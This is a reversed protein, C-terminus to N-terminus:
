TRWSWSFLSPIKQTKERLDAGKKCVMKHRVKWDNEQCENSCYYILQCRECQDFKRDITETQFCGRAGCPEYGIRCPGFSIPCFEYWAPVNAPVGTDLEVQLIDLLQDLTQAESCSILQRLMKIRLQHFLIRQQVPPLTANHERIESLIADSAGMAPERRLFEEQEEEDPLPLHDFHDLLWTRMNPTYTPITESSHDHKHEELEEPTMLDERDHYLDDANM